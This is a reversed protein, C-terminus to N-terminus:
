FCVGPDSGTHNALAAYPDAQGTALECLLTVCGLLEPDEPVTDPVVWNALAILDDLAEECDYLANSDYDFTIEVNLFAVESPFVYPSNVSVYANNSAMCTTINKQECNQTPGGANGTGEARKDKKGATCGESYPHVQCNGKSATAQISNGALGVMGYLQNMSNYSAGQM